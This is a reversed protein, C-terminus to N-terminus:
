KLASKKWDNLLRRHQPNLIKRLLWSIFSSRILQTSPHPHVARKNKLIGDVIAKAVVDAEQVPFIEPANSAKAFFNTRTSSPYVLMLHGNPEIEDRFGIAFSHLAAKTAAYATYGYVSMLSQASATIAVMYDTGDAHLDRMAAAAVMPALMNVQIMRELTDWDTPTKESYIAYGANAIYIDPIGFHEVALDYSEIVGAETTLDASHPVIQAKGSIAAVRESSDTAIDVALIACDYQAILKILEYGIGSAAGTVVITKKDLQM